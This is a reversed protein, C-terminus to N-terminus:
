NIPLWLKTTKLEGNKLNYRLIYLGPILLANTLEEYSKYINVKRYLLDFIEISKLSIDGNVNKPYIFEDMEKFTKNSDSKNGILSVDECEFSPLVDM